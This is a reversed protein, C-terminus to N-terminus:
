SNIENLTKLKYFSGRKQMLEDYTGQEVCEGNEMVVIKDANRITSLRHAVIFMTREKMLGAIAQQVYYESINDLASTAEDFIIIAPDRMMARAISIRQKQGGSLNGGHEEVQTNIGEPLKDTFERINALDLVKELKEESYDALGYVINEKITGSFLICNQSVVSLFNRYTKLNLIEIPKGDIKVEGETANLFGIIMNMVTSKGSGSSGVFAVCEGPEANFSLNKIVDKDMSPYRYSVNDFQVTGHVYRLKIKNDNNEIEDSIMIESVSKISEVGKAFEPYINLLAQIDATISNFYTQFLVVSGVSIKGIYAMYGTFVLCLASMVSSVVWSSSGFQAQLHDLSMGAKRLNKLSNEMNNIETDELGHAKTVPIMEIMTTIKSSVTEAQKRYESNEKSMKRSFVRVVTVNIPIIAAFFLTVALSKEVTIGITVFLSIIAPILSLILRNLLQEISEIDRIFKSQLAGSEMERHYTISLQQLKRVVSDRLGAGINRLVKSVYDIYWVHTCLNQIILFILVGGNIFLGTVSNKSPNTAIDIVNATVIPIIWMACHKIGFLVTSCVLEKWNSMLLSKLFRVAISDVDKASEFFSVYDPLKNEKQRNKSKSKRM